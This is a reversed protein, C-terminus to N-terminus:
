LERSLRRYARKLDSDSAQQSVNLWSYYSPQEGYEVALVDEIIRYKDVASLGASSRREGDDDASEHRHHDDSGNASFVAVALVSLLKAWGAM